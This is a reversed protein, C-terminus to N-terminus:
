FAPPPPPPGGFGGPPPPPGGADDFKFAKGLMSQWKSKQQGNLVALIKADIEKQMKEMQARMQQPDPRQGNGGFQGRMGQMATQQIERIQDRQTESLGVKDAVDPRNLARAGQLQLDLEHYRKYQGDNLIAKVKADQEEARQRMAEPDFNPPGGQGRQGGGVGGQGGQGRQGGGVGGQGGQGRQGGGFGGAGGPGGPGGGPRGFEAQIKEIQTQTLKLEKQVDLRMLIGPGGQGGRMGGPGGPGRQFGGGQGGQGRQGGGFGGQAIAAGSLAVTAVTALIPIWQRNNM